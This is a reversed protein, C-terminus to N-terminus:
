TMGSILGKCLKMEDQLRRTQLAAATAVMPSGNAALRVDEELEDKASGAGQVRSAAQGDPSDM